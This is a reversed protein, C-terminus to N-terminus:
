ERKLYQDLEKNKTFIVIIIDLSQNISSLFNTWIGLKFSKIKFCQMRLIQM